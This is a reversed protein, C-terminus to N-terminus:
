DDINFSLSSVSHVNQVAKVRALTNQNSQTGSISSPITTFKLIQRQGPQENVATSCKVVKPMM